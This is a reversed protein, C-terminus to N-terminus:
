AEMDVLYLATEDDPGAPPNPWEFPVTYLFAEDLEGGEMDLLYLAIEDGPGAPPNPWEFPVLYLVRATPRLLRAQLAMEARGPTQTKALLMALYEANSGDPLATHVLRVVDGRDLRANALTSRWTTDTSLWTHASVLETLLLHATIEDQIAYALVTLRRTQNSLRAATACRIQLSPDTSTSETPTAYVVGGYNASNTRDRGARLGYYVYVETARRDPHEEEYAIEDDLFGEDPTAPSQSFTHVAPGGERPVLVSEGSHNEYRYCHCQEALEDLLKKSDGPPRFTGGFLWAQRAQYAVAFSAENIRLRPLYTTIIHRIVDVPNAGIAALRVHDLHSGATAAPNNYQSRFSFRTRPEQAIFTESAQAWNHVLRLSHNAYQVPNDPTGLGIATTTRIATSAAECALYDLFVIAGPMYYGTGELRITIRTTIDLATFSWESLAYNAGQATLTFTAISDQDAASGVMVIIKGQSEAAIGPGSGAGGISGGSGGGFGSAGFAGARLYSRLLLSYLVSVGTTIDAYMEFSYSYDEILFADNVPQQASLYQTGDRLDTGELISAAWPTGLHETITWGTVLPGPAVSGTIFDGGTILNGALSSLTDRYAFVLTYAQGIQTPIDRFVSEDALVDGTLELYYTGEFPDSTEVSTSAGASEDWNTLDGSEFGGNALVDLAQINIGEVDVTITGARAITFRILTVPREAGSAVYLVEYDMSDVVDGAERVTLVLGVTYGVLYDYNVSTLTITEGVIHLGPSGRVLGSLRLYSVDDGINVVDRAAYTVGTESGLSIEGAEPFPAAYEVMYIEDDATGVAAALTGVADGRVQICHLDIAKGVIIPIIQGRNEEPAGPFVQQTGVPVDLNRHWAFSGSLVSISRTQQWTTQTVRRHQFRSRDYFGYFLPLRHSRGLDPAVLWARVVANFTPLNNLQTIMALDHVLLGLESVRIQGTRPDIVESLTSIGGQELPALIGSDYPAHQQDLQLGTDLMLGEDLRLPGGPGWPRSSWTLRYGVGHIEILWVPLVNASRFAALWAATVPYM